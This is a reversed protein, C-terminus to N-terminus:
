LIFGYSDLLKFRCSPSYNESEPSSVRLDVTYYTNQSLVSDRYCFLLFLNNKKKKKLWNSVTRQM